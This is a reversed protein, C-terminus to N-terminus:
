GGPHSRAADTATAKASDVWWDDLQFGSRIKVNPHGFRNWYAIRFKDLHWNPVVYWGWLLTRDLAHVADTLETRTTAAIVKGVLADVVPNCVGMMNNSGTQKAAPCTWNDRQESGPTDSEPFVGMTMDFDFDDAMHQYQSPDVTRVEAAIGLHSLTQVYPLLVREYTPDALLITFHMQQGHADVLKFNKVNWGARHLLALSRILEQRNNGSGDTIPLTYPKTFVEAPLDSKYPMLLALEGGSPLGSSAMDSNSFYSLDRKYSNYFLNKNAWQFDYAWTLAERVYRNNFPARRTNMAFGQMGTPLRMPVLEKVVLGREVAPFNYATAWNKAINEQRFDIQGAKFAEMAVTADRYYETRIEDINNMGREVNLNAAWYNPVRRYVISRSFEVHDVRYPGSGLPADHLPASFDRGHWWHEPLVAIEGLILPMERNNSPKLHFVVRRPGDVSVSTVDSYYASYFPRGHQVLMKFTWAVDGATVPTGDNFKAAPNLDFAVWSHDAPIEITKALLGYATAAEDASPTLLTDWVRNIGAAATGRVIFPNFSDFSGLAGLTITGGKPAKPNVYPFYPFDAPLKPQSLVAFGHSRTVPSPTAPTAAPTQARAAIAGLTLAAILAIIARM